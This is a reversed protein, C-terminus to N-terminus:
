KLKQELEKKFTKQQVGFPLRHFELCSCNYGSCKMPGKDISNYDHMSIDCNCFGCNRRPKRYKYM